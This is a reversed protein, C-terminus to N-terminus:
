HHLTSCIEKELDANTADMQDVISKLNAAEDNRAKQKSNLIQMMPLSLSVHGGVPGTYGNIESDLEQIHTNLTAQRIQLQTLTMYEKLLCRLVEVQTNTSGIQSTLDSKAPFHDEIWLFGGLFFAIIAILEKYEKLKELM